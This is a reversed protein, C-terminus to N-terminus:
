SAIDDRRAIRVVRATVAPQYMEELVAEAMLRWNEKQWDKLTHWPGISTHMLCWANYCAEGGRERDKESIDM